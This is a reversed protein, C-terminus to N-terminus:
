LVKKGAGGPRTPVSDLVWRRRGNAAGLRRHGFGNGIRRGRGTIGSNEFGSDLFILLKTRIEKRGM